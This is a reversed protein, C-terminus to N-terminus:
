SINPYSILTWSEYTHNRYYVKISGTRNPTTPTFFAAEFGNNIFEDDPNGGNNYNGTNYLEIKYGPNVLYYDDVDNPLFGKLSCVIPTIDFTTAGNFMYGAVISRSKIGVEGVINQGFLNTNNSTTTRLNSTSFNVCQIEKNTNTDMGFRYVNYNISYSTIEYTPPSYTIINFTPSSTSTLSSNTGNYTYPVNSYVVPSFATFSGTFTGLTETTLSYNQLSYIYTFACRITYTDVTPVSQIDPLFKILINDLYYNMYVNTQTYSFRFTNETFLEAANYITVNNQWLEGNKWISLRFYEIKTTYQILNSPSIYGNRWLLGGSLSLNLNIEKTFPESIVITALDATPTSTYPTTLSAGESFNTSAVVNPYTTLADTVIFTDNVILDNNVTADNTVTLNTISTTALTANNATLNTINATALTATGDVNLNTDIDVNTNKVNFSTPNVRLYETVVGTNNKAQYALSGNIQQNIISMTTGTQYLQTYESESKNVINCCRIDNKFLTSGGVQGFRSTNDVSLLNKSIITGAVQIFGTSNNLYVNGQCDIDNQVYLDEGCVIDNGTTISESCNLQYVQAIGTVDLTATTINTSNLTGTTFSTDLADIEAKINMGQVILTKNITVNNDITTTDTGSTYTIGSLKNICDDINTKVNYGTGLFLNNGTPLLVHNNITTLDQASDYSIGSITTNITNISNIVNTSGVLLNKGSSITLNNDILTTDTGSIYSIGTLALSNGSSSSQLSDIENDLTDFKTQINVSCNDLCNIETQSINGLTASSCSISGGPISVDKNITISDDIVIPEDLYVAGIYRQFRFGGNGGSARNNMIFSYQSTNDRNYQFQLGNNNQINQYNTFTIKNNRGTVIGFGTCRYNSLINTGNLPQSIIGSGNFTLNSNNTLEISKMTNSGTGSQTIYGTGSQTINQDENLTINNCSITKLVAAGTTQTIDGQIEATGQIITNKLTATTGAEIMDLDGDVELTLTKTNRFINTKGSPEVTLDQIIISDEEMVIDDTTTTGPVTVSAPFVVSDLIILDKITSTGSFTNNVTTGSQTISKGSRMTLNDCTVDKLSASGGSQTINSGVALFGNINTDKLDNTGTGSQNIEGTQTQVINKNTVNVTNNFNSIGNFALNNTEGNFDVVINDSADRVYLRDCDVTTANVTGINTSDATLANCNVNVTTVTDNTLITLEDSSQLFDTYTINNHSATGDTIYSIGDSLTKVGNMSREYITYDGIM